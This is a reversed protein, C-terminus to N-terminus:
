WDFNANTTLADLRTQIIKEANKQRFDYQQRLKRVHKELSELRKKNDKMKSFFIKRIVERLQKLIEKKKEANQTNKYRRVLEQIKKNTKQKKQRIRKVIKALEQRFTKPDTVYLQRLHTREESSINRLIQWQAPLERNFKRPKRKWREKKEKRKKDERQKDIKKEAETNQKETNGAIAPNSLVFGALVTLLLFKM